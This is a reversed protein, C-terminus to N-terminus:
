PSPYTKFSEEEASDLSDLPSTLESTTTEELQSIQEQFAASMQRAKGVWRGITKLVVPLENPGLLVLALIAIFLYESWAIDLM